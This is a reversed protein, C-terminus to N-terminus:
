VKIWAKIGSNMNWLKAPRATHSCHTGVTYITGKGRYAGPRLSGGGDHTLLMSVVCVDQAPPVGCTFYDVGSNFTAVCKLMKGFHLIIKDWLRYLNYRCSDGLVIRFIVFLGIGQVRLGKIGEHNPELILLVLCTSTTPRTHTYTHTHQQFPTHTIHREPEITTYILHETGGWSLELRIGEWGRCAEFSIM